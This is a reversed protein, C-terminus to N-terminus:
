GKVGAAAVGQVFYRQFTFFIIAVPITTLISAGMLVPFDLAEGFSGKLLALGVPLNHLSTDSPAAILVHLFENWAGQFSLITLTIVGPAALPLIIRFYMTFINAGDIRAAEEMERPISEFFQKMLFIGFADVALPIILGPWSNLMGLTGLVLFRPIALVIAPIALTSVIVAFVIRRGPFNLRALAYGALSDLLIRGALVGLTMVVSVFAWRPFRADALQETYVSTTFPEPILSLPNQAADPRTKFSTLLALFFPFIFFFAFLILVGYGLVRKGIRQWAPQDADPAEDAPPRSAESTAATADAETGGRTRTRTDTDVPERTDAM